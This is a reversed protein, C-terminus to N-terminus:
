GFGGAAILREAIRDSVIPRATRGLIHGRMLAGVQSMGFRGYLEPPQVRRKPAEALRLAEVLDDLEYEAWKANPEWGYGPHVPALKWPNWPIRVSGAPAYDESGGYGVHVLSSGAAVADFAPLDWAEGHSCSVYINNQRHIDRLKGEPLRESIIRLQRAIQTPSWTRAVRVDAMWRALSEDPTPYGEWRAWPSTKIFLSVRDKPTFALLFAGILADYGKSTGV